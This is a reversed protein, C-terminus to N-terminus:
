RDAGPRAAVRLATEYVADYGRCTVTWNRHTCVHRRGAEAVRQRLAPDDLLRNVQRALDAVDGAEYLLGTRGDEILERIGGVSSGIVAKGMAMAELPKLPTVLETARGRPRTVCFVDIVSYYRAVEGHPVRGTFVVRDAVRRRKARARLLPANKADDGVLLLSVDDRRGALLAFGDIFHEIGEMQRLSGIYGLVRPRLGCRRRIEADPARPEFREPQVANPVVFCRDEPVGRTLLDARLHQGIAVVVDAVDLGRQELWVHYRYKLSGRRINGQMVGSDEWLGRVEYVAPVGLRRSVVRAPLICRYPSHAHIVDPRFRRAAREIGVRFYELLLLDHGMKAPGRIGELPHCVRGVWNPVDMRDAPSPVRTYEIGDITADEVTGAQGGYYPGTVAMVDLGAERQACLICHSRVAYGSMRPMGHALVHLIRLRNGM